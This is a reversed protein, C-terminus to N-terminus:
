KTEEKYPQPLPRWAIVERQVRLHWTKYDTNLLVIDLIKYNNNVLVTCLFLNTGQEECERKSPLRTSCPIWENFTQQNNVLKKYGSIINNVSVSNFENMFILCNYDILDADILRM